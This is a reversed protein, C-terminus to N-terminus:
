QTAREVLEVVEREVDEAAPAFPSRPNGAPVGRSKMAAKVGPVGHKATIAQNLEVVEENLARATESEGNQHHQWIEAVIEPAVNGLAMIGGDIGVDLAQSYLSGSGVFLEFDDEAMRHERILAVMDGSSDKMGHINEHESLRGVTEPDIRMDAVGPFSYLYIPIDSADALRRYYQELTEQDHTYYHPTIVLAGDAGADAALQTQRETQAFGAHGTGAVVPVSSAEVVTEIVHAREEVSLLESEGNSGCPVLFDVGGDELWSVVSRLKETDVQEDEDFPTIMPVGVGQM